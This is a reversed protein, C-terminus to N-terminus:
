IQNRKEMVEYILWNNAVVFIREHGTTCYGMREYFLAGTSSSDLKSFKYNKYIESELKLMLQKGLGLGQKKCDVFMRTIENKQFSGTGIIEDGDM